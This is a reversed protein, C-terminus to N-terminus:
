SYKQLKDTDSVRSPGRYLCRLQDWSQEQQRDLTVEVFKQFCPPLTLTLKQKSNLQVCEVTCVLSGYLVPVFFM